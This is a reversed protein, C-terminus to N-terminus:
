QKLHIRAKHAGMRSLGFVKRIRRWGPSPEDNPGSDILVAAEFEGCKRLWVRQDNRM